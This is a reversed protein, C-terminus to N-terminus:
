WYNRKLLYLISNFSFFLPPTWRSQVSTRKRVNTLFHSRYCRVHLIYKITLMKDKVTFTTYKKYIKNEAYTSTYLIPRLLYPITHQEKSLAGVFNCKCHFLRCFRYKWRNVTVCVSKRVGRYTQFWMIIVVEYAILYRRDHTWSQSIPKECTM